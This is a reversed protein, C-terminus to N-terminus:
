SLEVVQVSGNQGEDCFFYLTIDDTDGIPVFSPIGAKPIVMSEGSPSATSSFSYYCEGSGSPHRNHVAIKRRGYGGTLQSTFETPTSTVNVVTIKAEKDAQVMLRLYKAIESM